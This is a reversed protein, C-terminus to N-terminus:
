PAHRHRGWLHTGICWASGNAALGCAYNTSMFVQDAMLPLDGPFPVPKYTVSTEDPFIAGWIYANSAPAGAHM